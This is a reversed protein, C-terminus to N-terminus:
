ATRLLPSVKAGSAPLWRMAMNYLGFGGLTVIGGLYLVSLWAEKPASTLMGEPALLIGPLFFLVGFLDQSGTLWWTDYRQSFRKIAVMYFAISFIALLQLFNGLLPNPASAGKSAGLSLLLVGGLSLLLGAIAAVSMREKLWIWAFFAVFLPALAAVAGVQSSTSYHLAQVELLFYLCPQLLGLGLLWKADGPRYDPKPLKRWFPLLILSAMVMRLWILLMTLGECLMGALIGYLWLRSKRCRLHLWTALLGAIISAILCPISTHGDMDILYRHLGSIVGAPIGVWPGFLIGGSIIAIIRVNILAGEVPIGTYTSFVAFLCFIAAVLVLEAPTHDRKQFLRQFPRTRTLLFLTMLMLAAREFVALLMMQNELM